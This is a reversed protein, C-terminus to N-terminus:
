YPCEESIQAYYAEQERLGELEDSIVFGEDEIARADQLIEAHSMVDPAMLDIERDRNHWDALAEAEFERGYGYM